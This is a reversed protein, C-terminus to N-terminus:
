SRQGEADEIYALLRKATISLNVAAETNKQSKAHEVSEQLKAARAHALALTADLGPFKGDRKLSETAVSVLLRAVVGHRLDESIKGGDSVFAAVEWSSLLLKTNKYTVSTMSRGRSPPTEILQEWITEMCNEADVASAEPDEAPTAPPAAPSKAPAAPSKAATGTPPAVRASESAPAKPVPAKSAPAKCQGNAGQAPQAAPAPNELHSERGPAASASLEPPAKPPPAAPSPEVAAAPAGEAAPAPAALAAPSPTGEGPAHEEMRVVKEEVTAAIRDYEETDELFDSVYLFADRELSINVFASQMGPLVRTVRGKYISGALSYEKEREFYLETVEDDELIVIKTERSSRSVIMEKSMFFEDPLVV